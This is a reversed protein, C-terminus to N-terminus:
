LIQLLIVAVAVGVGIGVIVETPRHGMATYFSKGKALTKLVEGQEGVARRVNLADYIVISTVVFIIGFAASNVGQLTAIVVLLAITIASHSSPMNGSSLFTTKMGRPDGKIAAIAVKVLQAALWAV